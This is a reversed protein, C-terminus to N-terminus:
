TNLARTVYVSDSVTEVSSKDGIHNIIRCQFAVTNDQANAGSWNGLLVIYPKSNDIVFNGPVLQYDGAMASTIETWKSYNSAESSYYWKYELRESDLISLEPTNAKLYFYTAPTLLKVSEEEFDADGDSTWTKSTTDTNIWTVWGNSGGKYETTTNYAISSTPVAGPLKTIFCEGTTITSIYRNLESTTTLKYKGPTTITCTTSGKADDVDVAVDIDKNEADKGSWVHTIKPSNVLSSDAVKMTITLSVNDDEIFKASPFQTTSDYKLENPACIACPASTADSVLQDVWGEVDDWGEKEITKINEAKVFYNGTINTKTTKLDPNFLLYSRKLYLTINADEPWDNGTYDFYESGVKTFFTEQPFVEDEKRSYAIYEEGETFLGAYETGLKSIAVPDANNDKQYFWTYVLDGLDRTKGRAYLTLSDTEPDINETHDDEWNYNAFTVETPMTSVDGPSNIIFSKFLENTLDVTETKNDLILGKKIQITTPLTNLIHIPDVGGTKQIYFKVAFTLPGDKDTVERTIPWGFRLKGDAILTDKDIINIITSGQKKAATEWQIEIKVNPGALDVYDFYRDIEFTAIECLNDNTVGGCAKFEDPVHIERTNANIKFSGEDLPLLLYIPKNIEIFDLMHSYYDALDTFRDATNPIKKNAVLDNYANNFLRNYKDRMENSTKDNLSTIM